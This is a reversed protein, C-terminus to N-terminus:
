GRAKVTWISAALSPFWLMKHSGEEKGPSKRANGM